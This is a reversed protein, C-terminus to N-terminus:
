RKGKQLHMGLFSASIDPKHVPKPRHVAAFNLLFFIASCVRYIVVLRTIMRSLSTILGAGTDHGLIKALLEALAARVTLPVDTDKLCLWVGM